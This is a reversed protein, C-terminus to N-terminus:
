ISSVTFTFVESYNGAPAANAPLQPNGNLDPGAPGNENEVNVNLWMELPIGNAINQAYGPRQFTFQGTGEGNGPAADRYGNTAFAADAASMLSFAYNISHGAPSVLDGNQPDLVLRTGSAENCALELNAIQQSDRFAISATGSSVNALRINCYGAVTGNVTLTEASASTAGVGVALIAAATLIGKNIMNYEEFVLPRGPQRIDARNPHWCVLPVLIPLSVQRGHIVSHGLQKSIKEPRENIPRLSM